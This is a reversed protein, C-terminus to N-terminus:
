IQNIKRRDNFEREVKYLVYIEQSKVKDKKIRHNACRKAHIQLFNNFRIKEMSKEEFFSRTKANMSNSGRIM